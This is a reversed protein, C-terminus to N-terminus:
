DLALSPNDALVEAVDHLYKELDEQKVRLDRYVTTEGRLRLEVAAGGFDARSQYEAPIRVITKGPAVAGYIPVRNWISWAFWRNISDQDGDNQAEREAMGAYATGATREHAIETAERLPIYRRMRRAVWRAANKAHAEVGIAEWLALVLLGIVASFIWLIARDSLGSVAHGLVAAVVREPHVGFGNLALLVGQGLITGLVVVLARTLIDRGM